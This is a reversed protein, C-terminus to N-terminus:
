IFDIVTLSARLGVVVQLSMRTNQMEPIEIQESDCMLGMKKPLLSSKCLFATKHASGCMFDAHQVTVSQTQRAIPTTIVLRDGLSTTM